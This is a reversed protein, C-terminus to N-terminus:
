PSLRSHNDYCALCDEHAYTGHECKGDDDHWAPYPESIIVRMFAVILAQMEEATIPQTM